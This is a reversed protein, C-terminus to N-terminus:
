GRVIKTISSYNFSRWDDKEIDYVNILDGNDTKINDSEFEPLLNEDLTCFMERESGDRKTFTIVMDQEKLMKLLSDRDMIPLLNESAM